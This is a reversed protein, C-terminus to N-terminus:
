SDSSYWLVADQNTGDFQSGSVVYRASLGDYMIYFAYGPESVDINLRTWTATDLDGSSSYWLVPVEGSVRHYGVGYYRGTASDFVTKYLEQNGASIDVSGKSWTATTLDTSSSYWLVADYDPTVGQRGSVLYRSGSSDYSIKHGLQHGASGDVYKKTWPTTFLNENQSVWVVADYNGSSNDYGSVYYHHNIPDHVIGSAVQLTGASADIPLKAWTAATIDSSSSYWLVADYGGTSAYGVAYYRATTPDYLIDMASEQTSASIDIDRRTWSATTIDSSDSYWLVANETSALHRGSVIYRSNYIMSFAYRNGSATDINRKVWIADEIGGFSGVIRIKRNASNLTGLIELINNSIREAQATAGNSLSVTTVGGTNACEGSHTKIEFLCKEGAADAAYLARISDRFDFSLSLNKIVAGTLILGLSLVASLILVTTLIATDGAQLNLKKFEKRKNM